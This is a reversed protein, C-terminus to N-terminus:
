LNEYPVLISFAICIKRPFIDEIPEIQGFFCGSHFSFFRFHFQIFKAQRVGWVGYRDGHIEFM